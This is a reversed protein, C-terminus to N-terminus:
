HKVKADELNSYNGVAKGALAATLAIKFAGGGDGPAVVWNNIATILASVVAKTKDLETKADPWNVLGGKTGGNLVINDCTLLYKEFQSAQIVMWDEDEIKIALAYADLKPVLTLGQIGDVVPSLRVDYFKLNSEEDFLVCTKEGENVSEVTGIFSQDPGVEKAMKKLMQRIQEEKGM